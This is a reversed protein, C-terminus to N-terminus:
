LFLFSFKQNANPFEFGRNGEMLQPPVVLIHTKLLAEEIGNELISDKMAQSCYQQLGMPEDLDLQYLEM